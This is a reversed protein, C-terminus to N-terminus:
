NKTLPRVAHTRAHPERSIVGNLRSRRPPGSPECFLQDGHRDGTAGGGGGERRRGPATDYGGRRFRFGRSFRCTEKAGLERSRISRARHIVNGLLAGWILGCRRTMALARDPRCLSGAAVVPDADFVDHASHLSAVVGLSLRSRNPRRLPQEKEGLGPPPTGRSPLLRSIYHQPRGTKVRVM